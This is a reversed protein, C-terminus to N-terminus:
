AEDVFTKLSGDISYMLDFWQTPSPPPQGILEGISRLGDPPPVPKGLHRAVSALLYHRETKLDLAQFTSYPALLQDKALNGYCVPIIVKNMLWAGGAEFNVWPRVVSRKSLMLIVIKAATLEQKIRDLWVEGASMQWTDSSLFAVEELELRGLYHQVAEAVGQDEHVFSIFITAM